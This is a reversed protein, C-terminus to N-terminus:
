QRVNRSNAFARTNAEFESVFEISKMRKTPLISLSINGFFIKNLRTSLIKIFYCRRFRYATNLIKISAIFISLDFPFITQPFIGRRAVPPIRLRDIAMQVGITITCVLIINSGTKRIFVSPAVIVAIRLRAHQFVRSCCACRRQLRRFCLYRRLKDCFFFFSFFFRHDARLIRKVLEKRAFIIMNSIIVFSDKM